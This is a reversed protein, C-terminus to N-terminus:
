VDTGTQHSQLEAVSFPKAVTGDNADPNESPNEPETPLAFPAPVDECAALAMIGMCAIVLTKFIKKM